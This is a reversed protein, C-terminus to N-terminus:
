LGYPLEVQETVKKGEVDKEVDRMESIVGEPCWAKSVKRTVDKVTDEM